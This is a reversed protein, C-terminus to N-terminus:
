RSVNVEVSWEHRAGGSPNRDALGAQRPRLGGRRRAISIASFASLAMAAPDNASMGFLFSEVSRSSALALRSPSPWGSSPSSASRACCADLSPAADPAWPAMRLGIENTRPAGRCVGDDRLPRRLRDDAGPDAFVSCLRPLSSRRTSPRTSIPPRPRSITVPVRADAEHVIQRVAVAYRLPDRETRLAYTMAHLQAAASRTRCTSWPPIQRRLGGYRANAAVGVIQVCSRCGGILNGSKSTGGSRIPMASTRERSLRERRRRAPNRAIADRRDRAACSRFRCPRSSARGRGCSARTRRRCPRRGHGSALPRGQDALAHSLTADRVGPMERLSRRLDAYFARRGHSRIAPRRRM